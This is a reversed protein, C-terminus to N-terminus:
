RRQAPINDTYTITFSISYLKDEDRSKVFSDSDVLVTRRDTQSELIQVCVSSKIYAIANLQEETIHQSRVLIQTSSDRFTQRRRDTDAFEGYSGPWGPFTNESGESTESIDILNDHFATFNWYDFGGKNNLWTLYIRNTM